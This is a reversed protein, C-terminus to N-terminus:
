NTRQDGTGPDVQAQRLWEEMKAKVALHFSARVDGALSSVYCSSGPSLRSARRSKPPMAENTRVLVHVPM